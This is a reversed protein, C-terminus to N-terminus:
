KLRRKNILYGILSNMKWCLKKAINVQLIQNTQAEMTPEVQAKEQQDAICGNLEDELLIIQSTDM